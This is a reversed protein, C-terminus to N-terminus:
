NKLSKSSAAPLTLEVGLGGHGSTYASVQGGYSQVLDHVISLGLGSGPTQEDLRTGRQFVRKQDSQALGSGDDEVNVVVWRKDALSTEVIRVWVQQTAWKCANDLVNGLVEQLDHASGQFAVKSSDCTLNFQVDKDRYLQKLTRVLGKVVPAVPACMGPTRAISAARARALHYDVHRQAQSVQEGVLLALEGNNQQAANALVSLPTKLAHALNGAQTRAQQVIEDNNRLVQNFEDVLPQIESPYGGIIQRESGARVKALERRMSILPKLGLWLQMFTAAVMGLVLVALAGVLLRTFQKLPVALVQEDAAVTLQYRALGESPTVVRSLGYMQTGEGADFLTLNPNSGQTEFDSLWLTQDWLSRSHAVVPRNATNDSLQNVQWYLGSLPQKFRPDSPEMAFTVSENEGVSLGAVLQNMYVRLESALQRELHQRFLGNLGWGAVGVTVIIWVLTGVFLRGRLSYSVARLSRKM